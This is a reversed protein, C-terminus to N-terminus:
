DENGDVPLMTLEQAEPCGCLYPEPEFGVIPAFIRQKPRVM